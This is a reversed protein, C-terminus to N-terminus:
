ADQIVPMKAPQQQHLHTKLHLIVVAPDQLLLDQLLLAATSALTPLLWPDDVFTLM